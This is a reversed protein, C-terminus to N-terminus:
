TNSFITNVYRFPPEPETEGEFTVQKNPFASLLHKFSLFTDNFNITSVTDNM